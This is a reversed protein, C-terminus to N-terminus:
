RRAAGPSHRPEASRVAPEPTVAVDSAVAVTALVLGLAAAKARDLIAGCTKCVAVSPRIKEGCGPCEATERVQYFWDKELGLYQAARREVDNIFLYSHSREWERDAALILRRYFTVLRARAAALEEGSPEDGAAVFVGFYSDEGADSNIEHCLDQAVEVATIPVEINRKDGLDMMATRGAVRTLTYPEGTQCGRVTFTGYSRHLTWSQETLNVIVATNDKM